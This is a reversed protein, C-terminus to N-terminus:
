YYLSMDESIQECSDNEEFRLLHLFFYQYINIVIVIRFM